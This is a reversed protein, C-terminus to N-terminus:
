LLSIRSINLNSKRFFGEFSNDENIIKLIFRKQTKNIRSIVLSFYKDSLDSKGYVDTSVGQTYHTLPSTSSHFISSKNRMNVFCCEKTHM